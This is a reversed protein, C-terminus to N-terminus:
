HCKPHTPFNTIANGILFGILFLYANENCWNAPAFNKNLLPPFFDNDCDRGFNDNRCDTNEHHFRWDPECNHGCGCHDNNCGPKHGGCCNRFTFNSNNPCYPIM